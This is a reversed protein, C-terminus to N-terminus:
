KFIRKSCILACFYFLFFSVSILVKNFLKLFHVFTLLLKKVHYSSMLKMLIVLFSFWYILKFLTFVWLHKFCWMSIHVSAEFCKLNDKICKQIFGNKKWDSCMCWISISKKLNTWINWLFSVIYFASYDM